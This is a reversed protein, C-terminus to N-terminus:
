AAGAAGAAGARGGGRWQAQQQRNSGLVCGLLTPHALQSTQGRASLVTPQEGCRGTASATRRWLSRSSAAGCGDFDDSHQGYILLAGCVHPEHTTYAHARTHMPHTHPPPDRLRACICQWTARLACVHACMLSPTPHPHPAQHASSSMGCRSGRCALCSQRSRVGRVRWHLGSGTSSRRTM